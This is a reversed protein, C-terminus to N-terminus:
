VITLMLNKGLVISSDISTFNETTWFSTTGDLKKYEKITELHDVKSKIREKWEEETEDIWKTSDTKLLVAKAGADNFIQAIEEVTREEAM